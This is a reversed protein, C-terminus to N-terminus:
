RSFKKQKTSLQEGCNLSFVKNCFFYNLNKCDTVNPIYLQDMYASQIATQDLTRLSNLRLLKLSYCKKFSQEGVQEVIDNEVQELSVCEEFAEAAIVKMKTADISKLFVCSQCASANAETISRSIVSQVSCDCLAERELVELKPAVVTKVSKAVKGKKLRKHNLLVLTKIGFDQPKQNDPDFEVKISRYQMSSHASRLGKARPASTWVLHLDSELLEELDRVVRALLLGELKQVVTQLRDSSFVHLHREPRGLEVEFDVRGLPLLTVLAILLYISLLEHLHAEFLLLDIGNQLVVLWCIQRAKVHNQVM